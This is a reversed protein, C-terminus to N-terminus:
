SVGKSDLDFVFKSVQQYHKLCARVFNAYRQNRDIAREREADRQSEHELYRTVIVTVDTLPDIAVTGSSTVKLVDLPYRIERQEKQKGM